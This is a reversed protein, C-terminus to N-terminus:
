LPRSQDADHIGGARRSIRRVLMPMVAFVGLMIAYVTGSVPDRGSLYQELTLGQLHLLVFEAALLLGLAIMGVALCTVSESALAFRRMAWRAGLVIVILMAPMELLEANRAGLSPALWLVRIVGLVFGAAFVCAFYAFGAALVTGWHKVANMPNGSEAPVEAPM